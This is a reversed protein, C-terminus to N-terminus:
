KWGEEELWQAVAERMMQFQGTSNRIKQAIERAFAQRLDELNEGSVLSRGKAHGAEYAMAVHRDYDERRVGKVLRIVDWPRDWAEQAAIDDQTIEIKSM